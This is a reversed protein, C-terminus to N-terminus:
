SGWVQRPRDWYHPLTKTGAMIEDFFPVVLDEYPRLIDDLTATTTLERGYETEQVKLANWMADLKYWIDKRHPLYEESPKFNRAYLSDLVTQAAITGQYYNAIAFIDYYDKVHHLQSKSNTAVIKDALMREVTFGYCTVGAVSLTKLGGRYTSMSVDVSVFKSTKGRSGYPRYTQIGGSKNSLVPYTTYACIQELQKLDEGIKAMAEEARHSANETFVSM